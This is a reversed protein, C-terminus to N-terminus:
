IQSTDNQNSDGECRNNRGDKGRSQGRQNHEIKFLVKEKNMMNLQSQLKKEFAVGFKKLILHYEHAILSGQLEDISM